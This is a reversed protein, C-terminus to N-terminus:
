GRQAIIFGALERLTAPQAAQTAEFTVPPFREEIEILLGVIEHSELGIEDLIAADPDIDAPACHLRRAVSARLADLADAESM